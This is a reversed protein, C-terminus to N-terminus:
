MDSEDRLRQADPIPSSRAPLTRFLSGWSSINNDAMGGDVSDSGSSAGVTKMDLLLIGGVM